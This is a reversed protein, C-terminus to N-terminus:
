GIYNSAYAKWIEVVNPYDTLNDIFFPAELPDVPMKIDVVNDSKTYSVISLEDNERLAAAREAITDFM